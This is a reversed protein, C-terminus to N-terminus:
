SPIPQSHIIWNQQQKKIKLLKCIYPQEHGLQEGIEAQTYGMQSLGWAKDIKNQKSRETPTEFSQEYFAKGTGYELRFGQRELDRGQTDVGLQKRGVPQIVIINDAAGALGQTGSVANLPNKKGGKKNTHHVAIIASHTDDAVKKLKRLLTYDKKYTGTESPKAIRQLIDIIVVDYDGSEIIKKLRRFRNEQELEGEAFLHLDDPKNFGSLLNAQMIEKLRKQLRRKNDELAMYLVKGKKTKRANFAPLGIAICYSLYLMLYSKGAKPAAALLTLGPVVLDDVWHKLEPIEEGLLDSAAYVDKKQIM